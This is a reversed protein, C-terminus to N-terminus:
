NCSLYKQFRIFGTKDHKTVTIIHHLEFDSRLMILILQRENVIQNKDITTVSMKEYEFVNWFSNQTNTLFCILEIEHISVPCIKTIHLWM